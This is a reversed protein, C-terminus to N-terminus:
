VPARSGLVRAKEASFEEDSLKGRDHLDALVQLESAGNSPPPAYRPQRYPAGQDITLTDDRPRTVLYVFTGLFPVLLVCAVWLAKWGGGLDTRRFIDVLAFSWVMVLPLFILLLLFNQWFTDAFILAVGKPPPSPTM